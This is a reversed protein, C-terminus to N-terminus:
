GIIKVNKLMSVDKVATYNLNLTHVNGLASVDEVKTCGLNLTHLYRIYDLFIEGEVKLKSRYFVNFIEKLTGLNRFEKENHFKTIVSDWDDCVKRIKLSEEPVFDFIFSLLESALEDM